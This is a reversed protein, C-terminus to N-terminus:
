RDSLEFEYAFCSLVFLSATECRLIRDGLGVSAIGREEAYAVEAESFGGEAGVFFGLREPYTGDPRRFRRGIFSGLSVTKEGEYCIFSMGDSAAAEVADKYKLPRAIEPIVTRGCQKAASVAISQWRALKKELSEPKLRAICRESEFFVIRSVGCEVAKQIIYENKDGKSLAQYLTIFVPSEPEGTVRSEAVLSVSDSLVGSIRCVYAEGDSSCVEISDGCTLRLSKSIHTADSGGISFSAGSELSHEVFFRPM